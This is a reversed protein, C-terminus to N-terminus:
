AESGPAPRLPGARHRLMGAALSLGGAPRIDLANEEIRHLLEPVRQPNAPFPMELGVIVADIEQEASDAQAIALTPTGPM